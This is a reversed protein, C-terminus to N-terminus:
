HATLLGRGNFCELVSLFFSLALHTFFFCLFLLFAHFILFFQIHYPISIMLLAGFSSYSPAYYFLTSHYFLHYTSTPTRTRKLVYLPHTSVLVHSDCSGQVVVMLHFMERESASFRYRNCLELIRPLM